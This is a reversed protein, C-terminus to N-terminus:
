QMFFEATGPANASAGPFSAIGMAELMLRLGSQHQYFTTSRHGPRVRPSLLLVAIRGGGHEVDAGDSEDWNVVVLGREFAPAALLPDLTDRLFDDVAALKDNLTCTQMGAPCDHGNNQQDPLLYVFRPLAGLDQAFQNWPVLRSRQEASDLVDSFYAFPNHRKVYPYVDGGVYGVSPLGQAYVRWSVGAANMRRVLNDDTVPGPFNNDNTIIQGTTLMFYNGISPHTNAFYQTALGYRNALSNFYPMAPSDVVDSYRTNELMVLVVVDFRPVAAPPM